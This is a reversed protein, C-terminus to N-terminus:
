SIERRFASPTTGIIRCFAKTLQTVSNFGARAAVESVPIRANVLLEKARDVRRQVMFRHPPM